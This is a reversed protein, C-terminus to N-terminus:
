TFPTLRFLSCVTHNQSCLTRFFVINFSHSIWHQGLSAPLTTFSLCTSDPSMPTSQSHIQYPATVITLVCCSCCLTLWIPFYPNYQIIVINVWSHYWTHWTLSLIKDYFFSLTHTAWPPYKLVRYKRNLKEISRFCRLFRNILLIRLMVLLISKLIRNIM